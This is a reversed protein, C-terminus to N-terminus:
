RAACLSACNSANGVLSSTSLCAFSSTAAIALAFKLTAAISELRPDLLRLLPKSM